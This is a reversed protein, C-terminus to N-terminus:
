YSMVNDDVILRVATSLTRRCDVIVFKRNGCSASICILGINIVTM